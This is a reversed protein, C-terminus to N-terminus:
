SGTEDICKFQLFEDDQYFLKLTRGSLQYVEIKDIKSEYFDNDENMSGVQTIFKIHISLRNNKPNVWYIGWFDNAQSSGEFSGDEKLILVYRVISSAPEPVRVESKATNGFGELMWKGTLEAPAEWDDHFDELDKFLLFEDGEYFLKLQNETIDYSKIKTLANVYENGDTTEAVETGGINLIEVKKNTSNIKYKGYLDNVSSYGTLTGDKELHLRYMYNPHPDPTQTESSNLKGFGIFKWEKTLEEPYEHNKDDKDDSCGALLLILLTIPLLDKFTKM